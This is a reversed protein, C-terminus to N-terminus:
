CPVPQIAAWGKSLAYSRGDIVLMHISDVLSLLHIGSLQTIFLLVGPGYRILFLNRKRLFFILVLALNYIAVTTILSYSRITVGM